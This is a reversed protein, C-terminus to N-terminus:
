GPPSEKGTVTTPRSMLGSGTLDWARRHAARGHRGRPSVARRHRDAGTLQTDNYALLIGQPVVGGLAALEAHLTRAIATM